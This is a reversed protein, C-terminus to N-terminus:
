PASELFRGSGQQRCPSRLRLGFLPRLVGVRRVSEYGFLALAFTLLALLPAEVGPPLAWPRLATALLITLTQHLIYVPFVADTLYRRARNDVDLHRHAFGLAAVVACWQQVSFVLPRGIASALGAPWAERPLTVLLAWAALAAFLAPWRLAEFRAYLAGAHVLLAGFAFMALYQSHMFWDDVLAHTAPFRGRLAIHTAALVLVPVGILALRGLRPVLTAALRAPLEPWRRLLAWLVLTYVFLYPLYWLHNWTPLMLCAGGPRCFGGYGSLYLRMFELPGGAYGHHQVVELYSQPPVIVLMGFALPVLLRAARERLLAGAAGRRRLMWATAAGSVLFLLDMRWPSLLRMWPELAVLVHQSKIHWGWSVYYMGVHYLVLLGFAIIRLWDLFFQRPPSSTHMDADPAIFM